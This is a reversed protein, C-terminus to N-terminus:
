TLINKIIDLANNGSLEIEGIEITKSNQGTSETKKIDKFKIKINGGGDSTYKVMGKINENKQNIEKLYGKEPATFKMISESSNVREVVNRFAEPLSGSIDALNPKVYKFRISTIQNKNREIIDWFSQEIYLPEINIHLGEEALKPNILKKLTNKVVIPSSFADKNYSIAIKQVHSDNNIIIYVFPDNDIVETKFNVIRSIKKRQALKIVFIDDKNLEIKLLNKSDTYYDLSHLINDFILNKNEKLEKETKEVSNHIVQNGNILPNLHYRFVQFKIM